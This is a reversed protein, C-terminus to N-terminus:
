KRRNGIRGFSSKDPHHWARVHLRASVLHDLWDKHEECVRTVCPQLTNEHEPRALELIYTAMNRCRRQGGPHTSCAPATACEIDTM